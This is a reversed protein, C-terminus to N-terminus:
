RIDFYEQFQLQLSGSRAVAIDYRRVSCDDQSTQLCGSGDNQVCCASDRIVERDEKLAKVLNTDNRMCMSYRAGLHM